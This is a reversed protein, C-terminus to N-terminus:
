KKEQAAPLAANREAIIKMADKVPIQAIGNAKDVWALTANAKSDKELMTRMDQQGDTEHGPVGQLRPEPPLAQLERDAANMEMRVPPMPADHEASMKTLVNLIPVCLLLALVITVALYVLQKVVTAVNIDRLEFTVTDHYPLGDKGHGNSGHSTSM